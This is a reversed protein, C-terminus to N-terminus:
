SEEERPYFRLESGFTPDPGAEAMTQQVAEATSHDEILLHRLLAETAEDTHTASVSKDWSIFTGVGRDVFARATRDSRLGDCGMLIVTTDDFKGNMRSEIFKPGIGFYKPADEDTMAIGLPGMKVEEVYKSDSYREGTFLSVYDTLTESGRTQDIEEVLGAHVRLIVLDYDKKPLNRYLEVTVEPGRYYDVAYGAQELISTSAQAFAPNPFTLDLQDLIAARPPGESTSTLMGKLSQGPPSFIVLAAVAIAAGALVAFTARLHRRYRPPAPKSEKLRRAKKRRKASM